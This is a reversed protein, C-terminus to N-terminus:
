LLEGLAKGAQILGASPFKLTGHDAEEV